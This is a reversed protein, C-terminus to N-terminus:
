LANQFNIRSPLCWLASRRFFFNKKINRFHKKEGWFAIESYQINKIFIYCLLFLLCLFFGFLCVYWKHMIDLISNVVFFFKIYKEEDVQFLCIMNFYKKNNNIIASHYMLVLLFVFLNIDVLLHLFTIPRACFWYKLTRVKSYQNQTAPRTSLSEVCGQIKFSLSFFLFFSFKLVAM